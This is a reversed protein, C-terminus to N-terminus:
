RRVQPSVRRRGTRTRHAAVAQTYTRVHRVQSVRDYVACRELPEHTSHTATNASGHFKHQIITHMGDTTPQLKCCKRCEMRWPKPSLCPILRICQASPMRNVDIKDYRNNLRKQTRAHAGTSLIGGSSSGSTPLTLSLFPGADFM